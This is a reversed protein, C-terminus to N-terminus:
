PHKCLQRWFMRRLTASELQHKKKITGQSKQQGHCDTGKNGRAAQASGALARLASQGASGLGGDLQVGQKLTNVEGGGDGTGPTHKVFDKNRSLTEDHCSHKQHRAFPCSGSSWM